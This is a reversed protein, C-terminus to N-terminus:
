KVLRVSRSLVEDETRIQLLYTGAPFGDAVWATRHWGNPYYQGRMLSSVKRGNSDFVDMDVFGPTPLAFRITTQSNFPNPYPKALTLETPVPEAQEGVLLAPPLILHWRHACETSLLSDTAVVWWHATITTDIELGTLITDLQAIILNNATGAIWSFTSDIENHNINLYMSYRIINGESDSSPHWQFNAAHTQLVAGPRPDYLNFIRPADNVSNIIVNFTSSFVANNIDTGFYEIEAGGPLNFDLDPRIKLTRRNAITVNLERVDCQIRYTMNDGDPDSFITDLLAVELEGPDEDLVLDQIPNAIIPPRNLNRVVVRVLSSIENEGDSATVLGRFGGADDYGTQWSFNATGDGNDTFVPGEPFDALDMTITIEQEDVDTVIVEFAAINSESVIIEDPIEEWEPPLNIGLATHCDYIVMRDREAVYTYIGNAALGGMTGFDKSYFGAVEPEAPDNVDIVELRAGDCTLYAFAGQVDFGVLSNEPEYLEHVVPNEPDTLDIILFGDGAEEDFSILFVLNGEVMVQDGNVGEIATVLTPEAPDSIDYIRLGAGSAYLLDNDVDIHTAVDDIQGILEINDPDDPNLIQIGVDEVVAYLVRDWVTIDFIGEGYVEVQRPTMIDTLDFISVAGHAIFLFNRIQEIDSGGLASFSSVPDPNEPDTVDFIKYGSGAHQTADKLYGYTGLIKVDQAEGVTQYASLLAVNDPNNVNYRAIRGGYGGPLSMSIYLNNDDFIVDTCVWGEINFSSVFAIENEDSVSLVEITNQGYLTYLFDGGECIQRISEEGESQYSSVEAPNEPDSADVIAVGSEENAILVFQGYATVDVTRGDLEYVGTEVPEQPNSIDIIRLGEQDAAVYLTGNFSALKLSAGPLDLRTILEPNEPTSVDILEIGNEHNAIYAIDRDVIIDQSIGQTEATGVIELTERNLITLGAIRDLAFVHTDDVFVDTVWVQDNYRLPLAQVRNFEVSAVGNGTAVYGVDESIAISSAQMWYNYLSGYIEVGSQDQTYGPMFGALVLICLSCLYVRKM